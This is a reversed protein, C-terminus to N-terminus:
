LPWAVALAGGVAGGLLLGVAASRLGAATAEARVEAVLADRTPQLGRLVAQVGLGLATRVPRQRKAAAWRAAGRLAGDVFAVGAGLLGAILPSFVVPPLSARAVLLGKVLALLLLFALAPLRM